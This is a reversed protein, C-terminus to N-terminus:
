TPHGVIDMPPFHLIIRTGSNKQSFLQVTGGLDHVFSRVNYLGLGTGGDARRTSFYPQFAARAIEPSMGCGTDNVILAICDPHEPLACRVVEILLTGGDPMANRANIALNLLATEIQLPDGFLPPLDDTVLTELFVNEGLASRLLPELEPVLAQLHVPRPKEDQHTRATLRLAILNARELAGAAYGLMSELKPDHSKCLQRRALEIGSSAIQLLNRFDHALCAPRPASGRGNGAPWDGGGGTRFREVM